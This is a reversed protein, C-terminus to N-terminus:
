SWGLTSFILYLHIPNSQNTMTVFGKKKVLLSVKCKSFSPDIHSNGDFTGVESVQQIEAYKVRPLLIRRTVALLPLCLYRRVNKTHPYELKIMNIYHRTVDEAMLKPNSM